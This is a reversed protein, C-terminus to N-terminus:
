SPPFIHQPPLLFAPSNNVYRERRGEYPLLGPHPIHPEVSHVRRCVEEVAELMRPTQRFAQDADFTVVDINGGGTRYRDRVADLDEDPMTDPILVFRPRRLLVDELSVTVAPQVLESFINRIGCLALGSSFAHRGTLAMLPRSSIEMFVPIDRMGAYENSLRKVSEEFAAAQQQAQPRRDLLQGLKLLSAPIDELIEGPISVVNLGLQELGMIDSERTGGKWALVLDPRLSLIKEKDVGNGGGIVTVTAAEEPYDSFASVGVLRDGAGLLYVLEALHPSLTVIRQAGAAHACSWAWLLFIGLLFRAAVDAWTRHMM